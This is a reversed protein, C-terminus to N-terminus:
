EDLSDFDIKLKEMAEKILKKNVYYHKTDEKMLVLENDQLYKFQLSVAARSISLMNALVANSSIGKNINKIITYRTPDSLSKFVQIMKAESAKKVKQNQIYFDIVYLGIAILNNKNVCRINIENISILLILRNNIKDFLDKALYEKFINQYLFDDDEYLLKYVKIIKDLYENYLSNAYVLYREYYEKLKKILNKKIKPYTNILIALKWKDKEILDLKDIDELNFSIKLEFTKKLIKLLDKESYSELLIILENFSKINHDMAISALINFKIGVFYSIVSENFNLSIEALYAEVKKKYEFDIVKDLLSNDDKLYEKNLILDFSDLFDILFSHDKIFEM